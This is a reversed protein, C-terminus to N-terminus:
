RGEGDTLRKVGKAVKRAAEVINAEDNEEGFSFRVSNKIREDQFRYMATLVHSPDLTGSTCASGSAAAVGDSDFNTLLVETTTNPFSVNVITPITKTID